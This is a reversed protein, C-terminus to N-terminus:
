KCLEARIAVTQDVLMQGGAPGTLNSQPIASYAGAAQARETPLYSGFGSMQLIFTQTAPSRAKIGEPCQLLDLSVFTTRADGSQLAVDNATLPTDPRTSLRLGFQGWLAVAKNPTIDVSAAGVQLEAGRLLGPFVCWVLWVSCVATIVMHISSRKM